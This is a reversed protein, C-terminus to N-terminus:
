RAQSEKWLNFHAVVDGFQKLAGIIVAADDTFGVVPITDPILDIPNILYVIAGSFTLLVLNSVKYEGRFHCELINKM